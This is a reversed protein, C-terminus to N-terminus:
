QYQNIYDTITYATDPVSHKNDDEIIVLEKNGLFSSVKSLSSAGCIFIKSHIFDSLVNLIPTNKESLVYEVNNKELFTTLFKINGDTHLYYTYGRYKRIFITLLTMLSKIHNIITNRRNTKMADGMRIHIVIHKEKLRNEPLKNNIFLPKIEQINDRHLMNQNETLGIRNFYYANDLGYLIASNYKKPILYVEHSHHYKELKTQKLDYKEIFLKVIEILYDKCKQQEIPPLHEFSFRKHIFHHGSFRYEGINHLILCSFLGHLQHGFGDTGHQIINIM